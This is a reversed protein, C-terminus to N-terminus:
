PPNRRKAPQEHHKAFLAPSLLIPVQCITHVKAEVVTSREVAPTV